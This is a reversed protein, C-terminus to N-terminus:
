GHLELVEAHARSPRDTAGHNRRSHATALISELQALNNFTGKALVTGDPALAIAFPSGPIELARWLEIDAEEDVRTVAYFPENEISRLAPELTRCLGCAPSTFLAVALDQGATPRARELLSPSASGLAPGEHPIELAGDSGVQLRLMGVERTLALVAVTLGAVALACVGLGVALWQDTNLTGHPLLAAGVLAGALAANRAVATPGVRSGAGFCACPAGSRGRAITLALVSAFAAVLGAAAWAAPTSGAAVAVALGLEAAILGAWVIWRAAAGNIGFTGLAARSAAPAALKGLAAAALVLACAGSVLVGLM